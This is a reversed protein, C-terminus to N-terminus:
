FEGAMSETRLKQQRYLWKRKLRKDSTKPADGKETVPNDILFRDLRKMSPSVLVEGSDDGTTVSCSLPFM